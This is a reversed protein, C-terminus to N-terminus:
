TVSERGERSDRLEDFLDLPFADPSLIAAVKLLLALVHLIKFPDSDQLAYQNAAKSYELIISELCDKQVLM